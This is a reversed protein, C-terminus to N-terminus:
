AVVTLLHIITVRVVLTHISPDTNIFVIVKRTVTRRTQSSGVTFTLVLWAGGVVIKTLKELNM